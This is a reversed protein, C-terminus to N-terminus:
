PTKNQDNLFSKPSKHVIDVSIIFVSVKFSKVAVTDRHSLKNDSFITKYDILVVKHKKKMLRYFTM